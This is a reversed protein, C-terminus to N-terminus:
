KLSNQIVVGEYTDFAFLMNTGGSIFLVPLEEKNAWQIIEFLKDIDQRNKLEFFYQARAPTRYNSLGTIDKNNELYNM